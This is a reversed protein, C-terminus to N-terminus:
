DPPKLSIHSSLHSVQKDAGAAADREALNFFLHITLLLHKTQTKEGATNLSQSAFNLCIFLYLYILVRCVLIFYWPFFMGDNDQCINLETPGQMNHLLM